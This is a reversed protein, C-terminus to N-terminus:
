AAQQKQHNLLEEWTWVRRTLKAEMAPTVRLSQHVRMFNYFFFHVALAARLSELRKSFANTLRTFRRMQMRITLNQREVLSTSIHRRVPFGTVPIITVGVICSPSYRHEGKTVEEASYRKHIQAYDIETGFANDVADRYAALSDTTLQFQTAIRARLDLMFSRAMEGTRKGVRFLPILKTDPDLAVFVYQDGFEIPDLYTVLRQKKFVYTWIEDIQLRKIELNMMERDLVESAKEGASIMFRIITDRHVGTLREISRVSLGEVLHSLVATKKSLSLTNM